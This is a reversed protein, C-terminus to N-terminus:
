NAGDARMKERVDHALKEIEDAKRIVSLSLTDKSTKDVEAKLDSALKLLKASEDTIQQKRDNVGNPNSKKAQAKDDKGVGVPDGTGKSQTQSPKAGPEAPAPVATQAAVWGPCLLAFAVAILGLFTGANGRGSSWSAATGPEDTKYSRYRM